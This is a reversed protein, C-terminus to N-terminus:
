ILSAQARLDALANIAATPPPEMPISASSAMLFPDSDSIDSAVRMNVNPLALPISAISHREPIHCHEPSDLHHENCENQYAASQTNDRFRSFLFYFYCYIIRSVNASYVSGYIFILKNKSFFIM